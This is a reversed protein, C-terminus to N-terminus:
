EKLPIVGGWKSRTTPQPVCTQLAWKLLHCLNGFLQLSWNFGLSFNQWCCQKHLHEVTGSRVVKWGKGEGLGFGCAPSDLSFSHLFFNCEPPPGPPALKSPSTLTCYLGMSESIHLTTQQWWCSPDTAVVCPASPCDWALSEVPFSGPLFM